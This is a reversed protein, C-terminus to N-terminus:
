LTSWVVPTKREWTFNFVDPMGQHSMNMFFGKQESWAFPSQGPGNSSFTSTPGNVVESELPWTAKTSASGASHGSGSPPKIGTALFFDSVKTDLCGGASPARAAQVGTGKAPTVAPLDGRACIANGANGESYPDNTYDNYRM